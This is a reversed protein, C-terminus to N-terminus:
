FYMGRRYPIGRDSYWPESNLFDRCDRAIDEAQTGPLVISSLKRAPRMASMEWEFNNRRVTTFISTSSSAKETVMKRGERILARIVSTDKGMVTISPYCSSDDEMSRQMFPMPGNSNKADVSGKGLSIWLVTNRYTLHFVSGLSPVITLDTYNDEEDDDDNRRGFGLGSGGYGGGRRRQLGGTTASKGMCIEMVNTQSQPQARLWAMMYRYQPTSPPIIYVTFFISYVWDKMLIAIKWGWQSIIAAGGLALSGSVAQNSFQEKLTEWFSKSFVVLTHVIRSDSIQADSM